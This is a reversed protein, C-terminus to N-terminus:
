NSKSSFVFPVQMRTDVPLGDKKGPRFKWQAIATLASNSFQPNTSEIVKADTVQGTATVMFEVTVYEEKKAPGIIPIYLPDVSKLLQPPHTPTFYDVDRNASIQYARNLTQNPTESSFTAPQWLRNSASDPPLHLNPEFILRKGSDPLNTPRTEYSNISFLRGIALLVVIVLPLAWRMSNTDRSDSWWGRIGGDHVIPNGDPDDPDDKADPFTSHDAAAVYASLDAAPPPLQGWTNGASPGSKNKPLYLRWTTAQLFEDLEKRYLPVREASVEQSKVIFQISKTWKGEERPEDLTATFEPSTWRRRRRYGAGMGSSMVSIEYRIEMLQPLDWPSHRIKKEPIPISQIIINPPADFLAREGSEDFYVADNLEFTEVLEFINLDRRDRCQLTGLRTVKAYRRQMNKLRDNAIEEASQALHTRRLVEAHWGEARLCVEVTSPKGRRTDLRVTERIAYIDPILLGPQPILGSAHTDVPLGQRYWAVPQTEFNGGQHRLTLDFWRTKGALEVELIAHNFLLTMPLLDAVRERLSTGVLIPRATVGWRRLLCTTLWALDKCDGYRRRAVVGPPAPIWGGNELEISLYRFEDQVYRVLRCIEADSIEPPRAFGVLSELDADIIDQEWAQCVRSIFPRWDALDSVQIWTYNLFTSPQFDEQERIAMQAGHWKWRLRGDPLKDEVHIPADDSAKWKMEPRSPNFLLSLGYQGVQVVPPVVFFAECGEPRIPHRTVFSYTAEIIDGPRVDDLVVLLTWNDDIILHDLQSERQIVRMRERQLQDVSQGNRVVKLTHLILRQNRPDLNLRWQSQHQVALPTELRTATAHFNHNAEVDVQRSWLLYTLHAGEAARLTADYSIPEIWPDPPAYSIHSWPHAAGFAKANESPKIEGDAPPFM